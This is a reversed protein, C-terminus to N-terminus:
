LGCLIKWTEVEESARQVGHLAMISDQDIM